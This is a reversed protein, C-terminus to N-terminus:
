HYGHFGMALADTFFQIEPASPNKLSWDSLREMATEVYLKKEGKRLAKEWKGVFLAKAESPAMSSLNRGGIINHYNDGEQLAKCVDKLGKGAIIGDVVAKWYVGDTDIFSALREALGSLYDSKKTSADNENLDANSDVVEMRHIERLYAEIIKKREETM